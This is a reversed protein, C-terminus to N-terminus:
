KHNPKTNATTGINTCLIAKLEILFGVSLPKVLHGKVNNDQQTREIDSPNTSSTLIFIKCKEKVAEPLRNFKSLFFFGNMTPMNLDLFLLDPIKAMDNLHESLYLLASLGCNKVMVKHSLGSREVISKNVYNDTDNDDVLMVFIEPMTSM